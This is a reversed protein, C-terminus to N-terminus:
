FLPTYVKKLTIKENPLMRNKTSAMMPMTLAAPPLYLSSGIMPLIGNM